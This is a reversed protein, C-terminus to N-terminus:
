GRDLNRWVLMLFSDYATLCMAYPLSRLPVLARPAAHPPGDEAGNVVVERRGVEIVGNVASV